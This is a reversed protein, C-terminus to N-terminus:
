GALEGVQALRAAQSDREGMRTWGGDAGLEWCLVDPDMAADFMEDLERHATDDSVRLLVEVRRDLNRHMLDASGIWWEAEGANCFNMVRSHEL